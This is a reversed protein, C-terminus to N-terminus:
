HLICVCIDFQQTTRGTEARAYCYYNDNHKALYIIGEIRKHKEIYEVIPQIRSQNIPRNFKWNYINFKMLSEINIIKIM